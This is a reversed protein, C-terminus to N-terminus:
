KNRKVKKRKTDHFEQKVFKQSIAHGMRKTVVTECESWRASPVM